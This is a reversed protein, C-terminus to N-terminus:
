WSVGVYKLVDLITLYTNSIPEFLDRQSFWKIATIDEEAQPKLPQNGKHIMEYWMVRKLVLKKKEEYIHYTSLMPNTIELNTIGCEESVERIAADESSEELDIKGKPLDWKGRRYIMLIKDDENRVVGGAANVVKDFSLQFEQRLKDIDYHFVTLSRIKKVQLFVELIDKFETTDTFKYFLGQRIQFNKVFDDTLHLVKENFFVKYM